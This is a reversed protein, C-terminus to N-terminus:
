SAPWHTAVEGWTTRTTLVGNEFSTTFSGGLLSYLQSARETESCQGDTQADTIRVESGMEVWAGTLHFCDYSATFTGDSKLMWNSGVLPADPGAEGYGVMSWTVDLLADRDLPEQEIWTTEVGDGTLTLTGADEVVSTTRSIAGTVAGEITMLEPACAMATSSYVGDSFGALPMGWSNCTRGGLYVEGQPDRTVLFTILPAEALPGVDVGDVTGSVLQWERDILAEFAAVVDDPQGVTNPQGSSSPTSSQQGNPSVEEASSTTCATLTVLALAAVLAAATKRLSIM